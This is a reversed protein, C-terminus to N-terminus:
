KLLLKWLFGWRGDLNVGWLQLQISMNLCSACLPIFRTKKKKNDEIKKKM